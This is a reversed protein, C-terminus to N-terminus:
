PNFKGDGVWGVCSNGLNKVDQLYLIVGYNFVGASRRSKRVVQVKAVACYM